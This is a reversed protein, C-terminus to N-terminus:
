LARSRGRAISAPTPVRPVAAGSTSLEPAHGGDFRGGAANAPEGPVTHPESGVTTAAAPQAPEAAGAAANWIRVGDADLRVAALDPRAAVYDDLVSSQAAFTRRLDNSTVEHRERIMELALASRRFRAASDAANRRLAQASAALAQADQQLVPLQLLAAQGREFSQGAYFGGLASAAALAAAAVLAYPLLKWAGAKALGAATSILPM